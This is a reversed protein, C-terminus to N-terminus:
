QFGLSWPATATLPAAPPKYLQDADGFLWSSVDGPPMSAQDPIVIPAFEGGPERRKYIAPLSASQAQPSYPTYSAHQRGHASTSSFVPPSINDPGFGAPRPPHYLEASVADTEAASHPTIQYSTFGAPRPAQYSSPDGGWPSSPSTTSFQPGFRVQGAVAESTRSASSVSVAGSIASAPSTHNYHAVVRRIVANAAVNASEASTPGPRSAPSVESTSYGQHKFNGPVSSPSPKRRGSHIVLVDDQPRSGTVAAAADPYPGNAGRHLAAPSWVANAVTGRPSPGLVDREGATGAPLAWNTEFASPTSATSPPRKWDSLALPFDGRITATSSEAGQTETVDSASEPVTSLSWERPYASSPTPHRADTQVPRRTEQLTWTSPFAGANPVQGDM